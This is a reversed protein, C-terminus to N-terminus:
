YKDAYKPLNFSQIKTKSLTEIYHCGELGKDGIWRFDMKAYILYEYGKEYPLGEIWNISWGMRWDTTIHKVFYNDSVAYLDEINPDFAKVSAVLLMVVDEENDYKHLDEYSVDLNCQCKEDQCDCDNILPKDICEECIHRVPVTEPEQPESKECSVFLLAAIPFLLFKKM